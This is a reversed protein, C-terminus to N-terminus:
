RKHLREAAVFTLGQRTLAEATRNLAAHKDLYNALLMPMLGKEIIDKKPM